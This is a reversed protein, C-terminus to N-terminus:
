GILRVNLATEYELLVNDYTHSSEVDRVRALANRSIVAIFMKSNRLGVSYLTISSILTSPLNNQLIGKLFGDKWRQGDKLCKKDFFPHYGNGEIDFKCHFSIIRFVNEIFM